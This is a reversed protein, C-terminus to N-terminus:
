SSAPQSRLWSIIAHSVDSDYPEVTGNEDDTEAAKPSPAHSLRHSMAPLVVLTASNPHAAKVVAVIREHDALETEFDSTGYVALVPIGLKPWPAIVNLHAVQQMYAASVPYIDNHVRCSPMTQEIVSEPEYEFFLRQMCQSKEVLAVDTAAPTESDLELDRRLNRIEYEPWDRGVAELVIVGAVRNQSALLPAIITGISHGLLYVRTRDVHPNRQLATLAAAYGRVEAEFDVNRCPPGQSDGVGSKEVRMTVFGARGLDHTLRMYADQSNAAVDVSYCGIGGILLIAPAPAALDQPMTVLTRRLSDDVVIDGYQTVVGADREDLASGLVATLHLTSSGRMVDVVTREGAHLNHVALLYQAVTATPAGGVARITDGDRLGASAAASGVIVATARVGGNGQVVAAGFVGHRPLAPMPSAIVTPDSANPQVTLRGHELALPRYEDAQNFYRSPWALIRRDPYDYVVNFRKLLGTGVSADQLGLAFAGGRDRSARTVVGPVTTGFLSVTTRLVDSYVPGGVGVGTIAHRVPADRYFNNERAFHGFLTLSFRDGTDVIFTGHVGDVAAPIQILDAADVTFGVATANKPVGIPAYSFTIRREDMDVGVRLKRLLNYGIIGDLRPFGIARQIPSLDIVEAPMESFRLSGITLSSLRTRSLSSSGSGVGTAVGAARLTLGLRHAVQPTVLVSNSGTDVIMTFPGAGDVSAEVFMRNDFLAFPVTTSTAAQAPGVIASLLLAGLM